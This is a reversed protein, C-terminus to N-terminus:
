GRGGKLLRLRAILGDLPALTDTLEGLTVSPRAVWLGAEIDADTITGSAWAVNCNQAFWGGPVRREVRWEASPARKSCLVTGVGISLEGLTASPSPDTVGPERVGAAVSPASKPRHVSPHRSKCADREASSPTM